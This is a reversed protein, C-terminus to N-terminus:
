MAEFHLARGPAGSSQPRCVGALQRRQCGGPTTVDKAADRIACVAAALKDNSM